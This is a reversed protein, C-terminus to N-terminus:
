RSDSSSASRSAAAEARSASAPASASPSACSEWEAISRMALALARTSAVSSAVKRARAGCSASASATTLSTDRSSVAKVSSNGLSALVRSSFSARWPCSRVSVRLYAASRFPTMAHALSARVRSASTSVESSVSLAIAARTSRSPASNAVAAVPRLLARALAAFAKLLATVASSAPRAISRAANEM